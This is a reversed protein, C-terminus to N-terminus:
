YKGVRESQASLLAFCTHTCICVFLCFDFKTMLTFAFFNILVGLLLLFRLSLLGCNVHSSFRSKTVKKRNRHKHRFTELYSAVMALYRDMPKFQTIKIIKSPMLWVLRSGICGLRQSNHVASQSANM